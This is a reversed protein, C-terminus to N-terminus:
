TSRRIIMRRRNFFHSFPHLRFGVVWNRSYLLFPNKSSHTPREHCPTMSSVSDVSILAMLIVGEFSTYVRRSAQAVWIFFKRGRGKRKGKPVIKEVGNFVLDLEASWPVSQTRVRIKVWNWRVYEQSHKSTVWFLLLPLFKRTSTKNLGTWFWKVLLQLVPPETEDNAASWPSINSIKPKGPSSTPIVSTYYM